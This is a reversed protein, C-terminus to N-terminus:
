PVTMGAVWTGVYFLAVTVVIGILPWYFVLRKRILNVIVMGFALFLALIAVAILGYVVISLATPNCRLGDYPGAGCEAQIAAYSTATSIVALALVAGIALLVVAVVIDLVVLVPNRRRPPPQSSM